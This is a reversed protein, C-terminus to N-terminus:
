IRTGGHVTRLLEGPLRRLSRVAAKLGDLPGFVSRDSFSYLVLINKASAPNAAFCPLASGVFCLMVVALFWPPSLSEVGFLGSRKEFWVKRM